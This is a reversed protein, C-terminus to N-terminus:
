NSTEQTWLKVDQWCNKKYVLQTLFKKIDSDLRNDVSRGLGWFLKLLDKDLKSLLKHQFGM